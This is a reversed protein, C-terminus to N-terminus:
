QGTATDRSSRLACSTTIRVSCTASLTPKLSRSTGCAWILHDRAVAFRPIGGCIAGENAIPTHLQHWVVACWRFFFPVFVFRCEFSRQELEVIVVRMKASSTEGEVRRDDEYSPLELM